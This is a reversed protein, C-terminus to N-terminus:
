IVEDGLGVTPVRIANWSLCAFRRDRHPLFSCWLAGVLGDCSYSNLKSRGVCLRVSAKPFFSQGAVFFIPLSGAFPVVFQSRHSRALTLM